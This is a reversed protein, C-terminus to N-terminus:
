ERPEVSQDALADLDARFQRYDIRPGNGLVDIARQKPTFRSQQVPTLQAVPVGNRTVIFSEGADLSRM